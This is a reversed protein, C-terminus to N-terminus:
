SENMSMECVLVKSNFRFIREGLQEAGIENTMWNWAQEWFIEVQSSKESKIFKEGCWSNTALEGFMQTEGNPVM